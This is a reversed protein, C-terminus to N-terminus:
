GWFSDQSVGNLTVTDGGDFRIVMNGNADTRFTIGANQYAALSGNRAIAMGEVVLSDTGVTFDTIVTATNVRTDVNQIVFRDAGEGGTLTHRAGDSLRVFIFDDGAGGNVTSNGTGTDINDNGADGNLVDNGSTGRLTDNGNGGSITDNGEGGVLLDNGAEGFIRDHGAGGNITDNGIGGYLHDHGGGGSLWDRGDLGYLKDNGLGGELRDDGLGGHIVDKGAGGFITDNGAAGFIYDDGEGGNIVDHGLGGNITDDGAAGNITDNGALGNIVEAFRSGNIHDAGPTGNIVRNAGSGDEYTGTFADPDRVEWWGPNERNFEILAEWRASNDDIHELNGWSGYRDHRGIDVFANFLTGGADRWGEMLEIYLAAMGSSANLWTFFSTLQADNQWAGVGVVHTGGEYMVLELGRADAIRKHYAFQEFLAALSGERSGTVSGDRLERIALRGAYDYQHEDIYRTRAAGTLGAETAATEARRLSESLWRKVIEPKDDRGLGGDFYGTVAYADFYSAPPRNGAGSAVWQPANLIANELGLWGTQTALVKVVRDDANAGYVSDIIQAMQVAQGAYYQVWATGEGPWLARGQADAWQAQGFQWNWVENSYEFYPKLDPDLNDRVYTVFNRIYEASALHPINFWPDTGTENALQVMVELPVGADSGWTYDGAEPRDAWNGQTSDNTRMWDMFRLSRMQGILDLWDPNFIHGADFRDINSEHVVSIDRIHNGSRTSLIDITVMGRGNPTYDFWIEGNGYRVNTAGQIRIEGQGDYTLRYTGAASTMAAPLETLIMTSIHTAGAPMRTPWGNADLVADIQGEGVGGWQGSLHGVWERAMKFVDLFPSQTSWDHVGNLGVGISPNSVPNQAGPEGPQSPVETGPGPPVVGTDGGGTGPDPDVSGDGGQDDDGDGAGPDTPDVHGGGTGGGPSQNDGVGDRDYENVTEWAVLQLADALQASPATFNGGWANQTTAPLDSPNVGGITAYMVMAIFYMGVDNLHIDDSFIQTVSSLGPVRGEGIADILNIMAQGAPILLMPKTGDARNANVHDVIGEWKAIDNQIQTRWANVNNNISGFTMGHWTEYMYVQANPNSSTALNFYNLAAGNSDWWRIQEDLPIGETIVLVDYRGTALATRANMGEAGAGNRWNYGLPAGNILQYDARGDGGQSNILSNMMAPLRPSVLSHGVFFLNSDISSPM